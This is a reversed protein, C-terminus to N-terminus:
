SIERMRATLLLVQVRDLFHAKLVYSNQDLGALHKVEIAWGCNFPPRQVSQILSNAITHLELDSHDERNSQIFTPELIFQVAVLVKRALKGGEPFTERAM